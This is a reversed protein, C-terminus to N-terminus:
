TPPRPAQMRWTMVRQMMFPGATTSKGSPSTSAKAPASCKTRAVPRTHSLRQLNTWRGTRKPMFHTVRPTRTEGNDWADEFTAYVGALRDLAQITKQNLDFAKTNAETNKNYTASLSGKRSSLVKQPAWLDEEHESVELKSKEKGRKRKGKREDKDKDNEHEYEAAGTWTEKKGRPLHLQCRPHGTSEKFSSFKVIWSCCAARSHGVDGVLRRSNKTGTTNKAEIRSQRVM